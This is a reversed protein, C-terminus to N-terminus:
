QPIQAFIDRLASDLVPWKFEFGAQTLKESTVRNSNLIVASMEGLVLKLAFEPAPLFVATQKMAQATTEVLEKGRVPNPSTLNFTGEASQNEIAWLFARCVDERHVWSWWAQGNGFYTGLGFRLPKVVEALAGGEKAMVVGIRFKAVRIGLTTFQDAAAEWQQCCDVMFSQDVPLSVEQMWSEGSNGYIGIASASLYAKPKKELNQLASFLLYASQVRSQILEKKRANTWRKDAIGAGALNIVVEVEQLATKDIEGTEPNWFYQGTGKPSRTLLRVSHNEARLMEALLSGILGTGGAILITSKQMIQNKRSLSSSILCYM